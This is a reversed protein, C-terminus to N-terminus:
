GLTKKHISWTVDIFFFSTSKFFFWPLYKIFRILTSKNYCEFHGQCEGVVQCYEQKDQVIELLIELIDGFM